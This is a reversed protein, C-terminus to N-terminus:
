TVSRLYIRKMSYVLGTVVFQVCPPMKKVPPGFNKRKSWFKQL